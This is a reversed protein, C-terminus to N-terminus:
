LRRRKMFVLVGETLLLLPLLALGYFLLILWGRQTLALPQFTRSKPRISVLDSRENLWAMANLFLDKNGTLMFAANSAFDSDGFFILRAERAPALDPTAASGEEANVADGAPDEAAGAPDVASGPIIRTAAVAIDLPGPRDADDFSVREAIEGTEGWSQDSTTALVATVVGDVDPDVTEVSGVTPYITALGQLDRVIPHDSYDYVVPMSPSGGMLRSVPNVDVVLDDHPRIGWRELIAELGIVTKAERLVMLKGGDQLWAAIQEAEAALMPHTPGAVVVTGCGALPDEGGLLRVARAEANERRLAEVAERLGRPDTDELGAEGHGTTFCVVARRASTAEILANTLMQEDLPEFSSPTLPRAKGRDTSVLITPVTEIGFARAEAPHRAPDLVRYDIRRTHHQYSRLLDEARRGEGPLYFATISVTQDLGELLSVTQPSLSHLGAETMDFRKVQRSAIVNIAALIALVILSYFVSHAGYRLPRGMLLPVLDRRNLYLAAAAALVGAVVAGWAFPAAGPALLLGAGGAMAALCGAPGLIRRLAVM